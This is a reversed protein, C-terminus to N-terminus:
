AGEQYNHEHDVVVTPASPEQVFFDELDIPPHVKVQGYPYRGGLMLLAKSMSEAQVGGRFNATGSRVEVSIRLMKQEM